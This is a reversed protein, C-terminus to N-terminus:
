LVASIPEIGSLYESHDVGAAALLTAGVHESTLNTADDAVEGSALDITRGYYYSDYAGIVRGGKFGPGNVMMATYPWHDKGDLSNLQPTRGMESLVVIVTEDGLSGGASGPRLALSQRLATLEKFLYNFNASQYTDNLAHTDWGYYSYSLTAVRSVGLELLDMALAAQGAFTSVGSWEVDNLLGKLYQSRDVATALAGRLDADRGAAAADAAAATRRRLYSDMLDEARWDPRQVEVDSWDILNGSLLAELQGGTGTRTVYSGFEGPYSPGGVIVQPLAFDAAGNGALIAGWDSRDQATSGTLSIRLCNEHAVSPVLIGNFFLTQDAWTQLFEDVSPRDAHSVWQLDGQQSLGANREMDVFPNDFETAMVRTPDWGGYNVIFIFKLDSGTAALARPGRLGLLGLGSAGLLGSSAGLLRRRSLRNM